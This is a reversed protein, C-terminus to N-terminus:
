NSNVKDDKKGYRRHHDIKQGDQEHPAIEYANFESADDACENEYEKWGSADYIDSSHDDFARHHHYNAGFKQGYKEDSYYEEIHYEPQKYGYNFYGFIKAKVDKGIGSSTDAHKIAVDETEAGVNRGVGVTSNITRKEGKTKVNHHYGINRRTHEDKIANSNESRHGSYVSASDAEREDKN